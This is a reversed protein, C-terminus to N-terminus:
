KWFALYDTLLRALFIAYVQSKAFSQVLRQEQSSNIRPRYLGLRLVPVRKHLLLNYHTYLNCFSYNGHRYGEIGWTCDIRPSQPSSFMPFRKQFPSQCSLSRFVCDLVVQIWCGMQRLLKIRIFYIRIRKTNNIIKTKVYYM